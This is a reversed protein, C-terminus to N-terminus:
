FISIRFTFSNGFVFGGYPASWSWTTINYTANYTGAPVFSSAFNYTTSGITVQTPAAGSTGGSTGTGGWGSRRQDGVMQVNFTGFGNQDGDFVGAITATQGSSGYTSKGVTTRSGATGIPTTLWIFFSAGGNGTYYGISSEFNGSFFDFYSDAGAVYNDSVFDRDAPAAFNSLFVTGGGTYPIASNNSHEAVGGNWGLFAGLKMYARMNIPISGSGGFESIVSSLTTM